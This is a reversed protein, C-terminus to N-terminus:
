NRLPVHRAKAGRTVAFVACSMIKHIKCFGAAYFFHAIYVRKDYATLRKTITIGNVLEEFNISYLINIQKKSGSKEAKIEAKGAKNKEVLDWEPFEWIKTNVTDLPYELTEARKRTIKRVDEIAKLGIEKFLGSEFVEKVTLKDAGCKIAENEFAAAFDNKIMDYADQTPINNFLSMMKQTLFLMDPGDEEEIKAYLEEMSEVLTGDALQLVAKQKCPM